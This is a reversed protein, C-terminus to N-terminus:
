ANGNQFQNRARNRVNRNGNRARLRQNRVEGCLSAGPKSDHKELNFTKVRFVVTACIFIGAAVGAMLILIQRPNIKSDIEGEFQFSEESSPDTDFHPPESLIPPQPPAPPIPPHPPVPPAPKGSIQSEDPVDDESISDSAPLSDMGPVKEKEETNREVMVMSGCKPCPIIQGIRSEDFFRIRAGCTTCHVFFLPTKM